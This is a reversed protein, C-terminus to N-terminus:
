QVIISKYLVQVSLKAISQTCSRLDCVFSSMTLCHSSLEDACKCVLFEMRGCAFQNKLIYPLLFYREDLNHSSIILYELGHRKSVFLQSDSTGEDGIVQKSPFM